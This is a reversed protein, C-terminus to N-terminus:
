AYRISTPIKPVHFNLCPNSGYLSYIYLTCTHILDSEVEDISCSSSSQLYFLFVAM